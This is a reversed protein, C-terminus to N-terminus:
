GIKNSLTIINISSYLYENALFTDPEVYGFRIEFCWDCPTMYYKYRLKYAQISLRVHRCSTLIIEFPDGPNQHAIIVSM